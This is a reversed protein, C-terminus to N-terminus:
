PLTRNDLGPHSRHGVAGLLRSHHNSAEAQIDEQLSCGLHRSYGPHIDEEMANVEVVIHFSHVQSHDVVVVRLVKHIYCDEEGMGPLIHHSRTVAGVVLRSDPYTFDCSLMYKFLSVSKYLVEVRFAM